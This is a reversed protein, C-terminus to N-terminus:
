GVIMAFTSWSGCTEIVVASTPVIIPNTGPVAAVRVAVSFSALRAAAAGDHERENVGDELVGVRLGLM